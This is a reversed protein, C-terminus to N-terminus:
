KENKMKWIGRMRREVRGTGIGLGIVSELSESKSSENNIARDAISRASKEEIRRIVSLSMMSKVTSESASAAREGWNNEHVSIGAAGIKGKIEFELANTEVIPSRKIFPTIGGREQLRLATKAYSRM